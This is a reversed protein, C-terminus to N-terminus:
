TVLKTNSIALQYLSIRVNVLAKWIHVSTTRVISASDQRTIYVAALVRDRREKGLTEVLAVRSANATPMAVEDEEGEENGPDAKAAIGSIRFLLDGLLQICSQWIRWSEHFLGQELEPMLLEIAKTSHNIVIMRGARMSADRVYDSDDALDNLVALHKQSSTNTIIDPMLDDLKETGLGSMIESLGQAAGQQNVGPVETRLTDFLSPVLEPFSEEGLREVLSGLAKAATARAERVPDVLVQRVRPMLQPLYASLDKSEALTALNGVIQTAKRKIEASRERLGRILALSSTDVYHVFATGLSQRVSKWNEMGPRSSSSTSNKAQSINQIPCGRDSGRSVATLLAHEYIGRMIERATDQIAERVEAARARSNKKDELADRLRNVISFEQEKRLRLLPPLCDSVASQVVESPTKLADVLRTIVEKLRKDDTRIHRAV